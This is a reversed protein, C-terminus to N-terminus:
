QRTDTKPRPTELGLCNLVYSSQRSTIKKEM